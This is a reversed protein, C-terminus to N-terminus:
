GSVDDIRLREHYHTLALRSLRYVLWIAFIAVLTGVALGKWLHRGVYHGMEHATVFLIEERRFETLLNDGLAVVATPGLGSVFANPARTRKGLDIEYVDGAPIGATAALGLVSTALERDKIPELTNFASVYLPGSAVAVLALPLVALSAWRHWTRPKRDALRYFALGMPVAIALDIAVALAFDGIWGALSQTAVGYLRSLLFRGLAFPITVASVMLLVLAIYSADRLWRRSVRRDV